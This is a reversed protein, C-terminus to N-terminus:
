CASSTAGLNRMSVKWCYLFYKRSSCSYASFNFAYISHGPLQAILVKKFLKCRSIQAEYFINKM